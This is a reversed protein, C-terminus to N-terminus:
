LCCNYEHIDNYFIWDGDTTYGQGGIIYMREDIQVSAHYIRGNPGKSLETWELKDEILGFPLFYGIDFSYFQTSHAM